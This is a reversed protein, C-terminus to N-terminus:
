NKHKGLITVVNAPRSGKLKGNNQTDRLKEKAPLM